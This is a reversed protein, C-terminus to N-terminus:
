TTRHAHAQAEEIQSLRTHASNDNYKQIRHRHACEYNYKHTSLYGVHKGDVCSLKRAAELQATTKLCDFCAFNRGAVLGVSMLMVFAQVIAFSIIM